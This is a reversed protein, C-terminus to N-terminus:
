PPSRANCSILTPSVETGYLEELHGQIERTSLRRAYWSLVVEDLESLRRQRKKVLQPEFSGTRDRPVELVLPGTNTQLTKYSRGNRRNDGTAKKAEGPEYGLHATLDGALAREVLRKTLQKLLGPQGLIEEPSQCDKLLEDLLTNVKATDAM